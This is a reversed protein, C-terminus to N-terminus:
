RSNTYNEEIKQFEEENYDLIEPIKESRALKICNLVMYMDEKPLHHVQEWNEGVLLVIKGLTPRILWKRKKIGYCLQNYLENLEIYFQLDKDLLYANKQLEIEENNM